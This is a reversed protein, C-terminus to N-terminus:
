TRALHLVSTHEAYVFLSVVPPNRSSQKSQIYRIFRDSIQRSRAIRNGRGLLSNFLDDSGLNKRFTRDGGGRVLVDSLHTALGAVFAIM